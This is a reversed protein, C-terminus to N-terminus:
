RQVACPECFYHECSTQIPRVFAGRCIHCAFPLGEEDADLDNDRILFPNDEDVDGPDMGAALRESMAAKKAKQKEEWDKELQWGAKYDGRDHLYICSDGFGCYGTEKYDKCIDPQYDIRCIGRVNTPARIPGFSSTKPAAAGAPGDIENTAFADGGYKHPASTKDSIYTATVSNLVDKSKDGFTASSSAAHINARKPAAQRVIGTSVEDNDSDSADRPRKRFQKGPQPMTNSVSGTTLITM